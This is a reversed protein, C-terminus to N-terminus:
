IAQPIYSKGGWPIPIGVRLFVTLFNDRCDEANRRALLFASNPIQGSWQNKGLLGGM